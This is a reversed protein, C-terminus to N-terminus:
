NTVASTSTIDAVFVQGVETSFGSINLMVEIPTECILESPLTLSPQVFVTKDGNPQFSFSTQAIATNGCMASINSPRFANGTVKVPRVEVAILKASTRPQASEEGSLKVLSYSSVPVAATGNEPKGNSDQTTGETAPQQNQQTPAVAQNPKQENKESCSTILAFLSFMKLYYRMM